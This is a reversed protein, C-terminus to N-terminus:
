TNLARVAGAYSEAFCACSREKVGEWDLIEVSRRNHTILGAKTFEVLIKNTQPRSRTLMRSLMHPTVAFRNGGLIEHFALFQRCLRQPVTHVRQCAASQAITADVYHVWAKFRRELAANARMAAHITERSIRWAIAETRMILDHLSEPVQFLTNGGAMTGGSTWIEVRKGDSLPRISSMLGREVFILNTVPDDLRYLVQRARLIMPEIPELLALQEPTLSRLFRNQYEPM